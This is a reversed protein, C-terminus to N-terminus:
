EGVGSQFVGGWDDGCLWAILRSIEFRLGMCALAPKLM